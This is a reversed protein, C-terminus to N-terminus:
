SAFLRGAVAKCRKTVTAGLFICLLCLFSSPEPVVALDFKGSNSLSGWVNGSEPTQPDNPDVLLAALGATDLGLPFINGLDALAPGDFGIDVTFLVSIWGIQDSQNSTFTSTGLGVDDDLDSFDAPPIFNFDSKLSVTTFEAGDADIQVNGTAPNYLIDPNNSLGIGLVAPAGDILGSELVLEASAQSNWCSCATFLVAWLMTKQLM